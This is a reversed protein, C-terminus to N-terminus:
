ISEIRSHFRSLNLGTFVAETSYLSILGVVNPVTDKEKPGM